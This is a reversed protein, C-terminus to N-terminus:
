AGLRSRIVDLDTFLQDRYSFANSGGFEKLAETNEAIQEQADLQRQLIDNERGLIQDTLQRFLDANSQGLAVQRQLDLAAIEAQIAPIIQQRIYDARGQAGGASGSTGILRQNLELRRLGEDARSSGSTYTDVIRQADDTVAQRVAEDAELAAQHLAEAAQRALEIQVVTSEQLADHADELQGTIERVADRNKAATARQLASTLSAVNQVRVNTEAAQMVGLQQLGEASGPDVGRARMAREGAARGRDVSRNRQEVIDQIRGVRRGLEFDIMDLVGQLRQVVKAPGGKRVRAQVQERLAVLRQQLSKGILNDLAELSGGAFTMANRLGGALPRGVAGGANGAAYASGAVFGGPRYRGIIGGRRMATHVHRGHGGISGSVRRGNKVYWGLPDHFLELISRSWRKATAIAYARMQAPTGAADFARGKYHWSNPAHRGGTTSTITLGSSRSLRMAAQLSGRTGGGSPTRPRRERASATAATGQRAEATVSASSTAERIAALIPNGERRIISRTVGAQGAQQGQSFADALLGARRRSAGRIIPVTATRDGPSDGSGTRSKGRGLPYTRAKSIVGPIYSRTEAPYPPRAAPGANYAALMGAIGRRQYTRLYKAAAAAAQTFNMPDIGYARATAPMFQFPGRAGASSPGLNRGYDSEQGYVGWLLDPRNFRAAQAGRRIGFADVRGGQRFHPAQDRVAQTLSAGMAMRAQGDGTLVASGPRAFMLTGDRDPQGGIMTARAGDVLMEGGAAAIPVLGGAQYRRVIGGRRKPRLPNPQSLNGKLDRWLEGWGKKGSYQALAPVAKAVEIAIMAAAAVGFARGALKGLSTWRGGRFKKQNRDLAPGINAGATSAINSAAVAGGGRGAGRMVNEIIAKVGGLARKVLRGTGRAGKAIRSATKSSEAADRIDNIQRVVGAGFRVARLTGYAGVIGMILRPHQALFKGVGALGQALPKLDRATQVVGARFRGGAGTGTLIQDIFDATKGAAKNVSPELETGIAEALNAVSIKLRDMPLANAKASGGVQTELERLILKQAGLTNGSEVMTEIQAKQQKTFQIGARGLATVGKIPDQLAKGVQLSTSTLDKGLRVSLDLAAQNARDFVQNGKGAENRIKTFTLIVSAGKGILEDDIGAQRSMAGTMREIHAATVNAAGGTSKIGQAIVKQLRAAEATEQAVFRVAAVAGFGGLVGATAGRARGATRAGIGPGKAATRRQRAAATEARRASVALQNNARAVRQTATAARNMVSAAARQARTLRAVHTAAARSSRAQRTVVTSHRAATSTSRKLAADQARLARSVQSVGRQARAQSTALTKTGRDRVDVEYIIRLTDVVGM